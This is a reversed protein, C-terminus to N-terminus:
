RQGATDHDPEEHAPAADAAPAEGRKWLNADTRAKGAAADFDADTRDFGFSVGLQLGRDSRRDFGALFGASTTDAGRAGDIEGWVGYPKIWASEAGAQDM